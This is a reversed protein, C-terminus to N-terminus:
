LLDGLDSVEEDNGESDQKIDMVTSGALQLVPKTLVEEIEPKIYTKKM